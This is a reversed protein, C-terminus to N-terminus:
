RDNVDQCQDEVIASTDPISESEPALPQLFPETQSTVQRLHIEETPREDSAM